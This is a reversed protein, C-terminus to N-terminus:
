MYEVYEEIDDFLNAAYFIFTYDAGSSCVGPEEDETSGSGSSGSGSSGSSSSSDENFQHCIVLPSTFDNVANSEPFDCVGYPDLYYRVSGDLFMMMMMMMLMLIMMMMMMMMM